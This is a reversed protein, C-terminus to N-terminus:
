FLRITNSISTLGLKRLDAYALVFADARDPSGLGVRKMKRKDVLVVKANTKGIDIVAVTRTM